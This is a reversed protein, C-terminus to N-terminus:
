SGDGDPVISSVADRRHSTAASQGSLRQFRLEIEQSARDCASPRVSRWRRSGLPCAPVGIGTGMLQQPLLFRGPAVPLRCFRAACGPGPDFLPSGAFTQDPQGSLHLASRSTIPSLPMLRRTNPLTGFGHRVLRGAPYAVHDLCGAPKPGDGLSSAARWAAPDAAAHRGFVGGGRHIRHCAFGRAHLPPATFSSPQRRPAVQDPRLGQVDAPVDRHRHLRRDRRRRHDHGARPDLDAGQRGGRGPGRLLRRDQTLM